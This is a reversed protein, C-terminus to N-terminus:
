RVLPSKWFIPLRSCVLIMPIRYSDGLHQVLEQLEMKEGSYQSSWDFDEFSVEDPKQLMKKCNNVLIKYIWTNFYKPEQLKKIDRYSVLITEQMVDAVDASNRLFRKATAYLVNEYGSILQIFAEQNGKQAQRVLFQIDGM